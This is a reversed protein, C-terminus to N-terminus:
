SHLLTAIGSAESAFAPSNVVSHVSYVFAPTQNLKQANLTNRPQDLRIFLARLPM